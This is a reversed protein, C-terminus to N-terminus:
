RDVTLVLTAHDPVGLGTVLAVEAGEVQGEGRDGRLQRVAETVHEAGVMYSHSLLGGHTNVPLSGGPGIRGGEVFSSAEGRGCFGCEELQLLTTITFCDYFEVVDVDAPTLGAQALARPASRSAPTAPYPNHQTFYGAQTEAVSAVGIGAVLVPRQPLERAREASTMVFATAGDSILSCDLSRFPEAVMPSALYGDLSLPQRRMADPTRAAHARAAIAVEAQQEPTLGFEHKYRQAMSAFYLPQGYWGFPMEIGVKADLAVPFAYPGGPASGFDAGYYSLVHRAQGSRIALEALHPAGVVGAGGVLGHATFCREGIGLARAVEDAPARLPMYSVDTVIGDIDTPRLGADAIARLSADVILDLIPRSSRRVHETSGIGAIAIVVPKSYPM